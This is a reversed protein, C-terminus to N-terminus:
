GHVVVICYHYPIAPRVAHTEYRVVSVDCRGNEWEGDDSCVSVLLMGAMSERITQAAGTAAKKAGQREVPTPLVLSPM